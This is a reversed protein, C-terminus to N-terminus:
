SDTLVNRDWSMFRHLGGMEAMLAPGPRLLLRYTNSLVIQAGIRHLDDPAIAKVAAATGVPMFQLTGVEGHRLLLKGRRATEEPVFYRERHMRHDEVRASRVPLFTGPGVQLTIPAVVIRRSRLAEVLAPTFHLGATPAAVAGRERAFVTQYRERDTPGPA